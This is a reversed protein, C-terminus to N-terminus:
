SLANTRRIFQYEKWILAVMVLDFATIFTLVISHTHVLRYGQYAIFLLLVEMYAPYAWLKKRLVTTVLVLNLIGHILFYWAIFLETQVSLQPLIAYIKNAFFDLSDEGLEHKALVLALTTMASTSFFLIGAIIDLAGFVGKVVIGAM